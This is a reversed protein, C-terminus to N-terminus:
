MQRDIANSGIGQPLFSRHWNFIGRQISALDPLSVQSLSVLESKKYIFLQAIARFM